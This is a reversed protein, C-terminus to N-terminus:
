FGDPFGGMRWLDMLFVEYVGGERSWRKFTMDLLVGVVSKCFM